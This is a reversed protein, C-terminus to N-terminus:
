GSGTGDKKNGSKTGANRENTTPPKSERRFAGRNNGIRGDEVKLGAGSVGSTRARVCSVGANHYYFYVFPGRGGQWRRTPHLMHHTIIMFVSKAAPDRAVESSIVRREYQMFVKVNTGKGEGQRRWERGQRM